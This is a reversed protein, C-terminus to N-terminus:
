YNKTHKGSAVKRDSKINGDEKPNFNEIAASILTHERTIRRSFPYGWMQLRNESLIYLHHWSRCLFFWSLEAPRSVSSKALNTELALPSDCKM